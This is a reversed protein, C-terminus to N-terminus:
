PKPPIQLTQGLRLDGPDSLINRNANYIITWLSSQGYFNLSIKSLTDGSQVTYQTSQGNAPPPTSQTPQFRLSRDVLGDLTKQVNTPPGPVHDVILAGRLKYEALLDDDIPGVATIYRWRGAATKLAFSVDPRYKWVYTLTASFYQGTEPVLVVHEGPLPTTILNSPPETQSLQRRIQAPDVNLGPCQTTNGRLERHAQVNQTPINHKQQLHHILALLSDLQAQRPRTFNDPILHIDDGDDDRYTRNNSFWGSLCIALYHNNWYQGHELGESNEPDKFGAHYASIKDDLAYQITGDGTIVYNYGGHDWGRGNVHYNFFSFADGAPAGSTRDATASHHIAIGLIAANRNWDKYNEYNPMQARVDVINVPM